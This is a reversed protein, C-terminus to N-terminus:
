RLRNKIYATIRLSAETMVDAKTKQEEVYTSREPSGAPLTKLVAEVATFETRLTFIKHRDAFTLNIDLRQDISYLRECKGFGSEWPLATRLAFGDTAAL